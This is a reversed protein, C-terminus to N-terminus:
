CKKCWWHKINHCFRYVEDIFEQSEGRKVDIQKLADKISQGYEDLSFDINSVNGLWDKKYTIKGESRLKKIMM